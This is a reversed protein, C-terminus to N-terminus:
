VAGGTKALREAIREIERPLEREITSIAEPAKAAFAPRLWPTAPQKSTGAEMIFAIDNAFIPRGRFRHGSPHQKGYRVTVVMREGKHRYKARRTIIHKETFGTSDTIGTKGVEAVAVRFRAKAEKRLLNAAKRLVKRVPGGNKTVVEAPLKELMGLVGDLGTLRVEVKM